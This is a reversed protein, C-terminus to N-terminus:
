PGLVPTHLLLEHTVKQTVCAGSRGRVSNQAVKVDPLCSAPMMDAVATGVSNKRTRRGRREALPAPASEAATRGASRSPAGCAPRRGALKGAGQSAATGSAARRRRLDAPQTPDAAATAVYQAVALSGWGRAQCRTLPSQNHRGPMPWLHNTCHTCVAEVLDRCAALCPKLLCFLWISFWRSTM